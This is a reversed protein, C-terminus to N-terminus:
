SGCVTDSDVEGTMACLMACLLVDLLASEGEMAGTDIPEEAGGSLAGNEVTGTLERRGPAASKTSTGGDRRADEVNKLLLTRLVNAGGCGFRSTTSRSSEDSSPESLSSPASESELILDVDASAFSASAKRRICSASMRMAKSRFIAATASFRALSAAKAARFFASAAFFAAVSVGDGTMSEVPTLRAGGVIDSAGETDGDNDLLVIGDDSTDFAEVPVVRLAGCSM